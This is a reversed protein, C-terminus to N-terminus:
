TQGHIKRKNKFYKYLLLFIMAIGIVFQFAFVKPMAPQIVLWSLSSVKIITSTIFLMKFKSNKKSKSKYSDDIYITTEYTINPNNEAFEKSVFKGTISSKYIIQTRM